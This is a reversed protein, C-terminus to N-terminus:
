LTQATACAAACTNSKCWICVHSMQCTRGQKEFMCPHFKVMRSTCVGPNASKLATLKALQAANLKTGKGGKGGKGGKIAAPAGRTNTQKAGHPAQVIKPHTEKAHSVLIAEKDVQPCWFRDACHALVFKKIFLM